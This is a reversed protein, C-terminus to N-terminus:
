EDSALRTILRGRKPQGTTSMTSTSSYLLLCSWRRLLRRTVSSMQTSSPTTDVMLLYVMHLARDLSASSSTRPSQFSCSASRVSLSECSVDSVFTRALSALSAMWSSILFDQRLRLCYQRLSRTRSSYTNLFSRPRAMSATYRILLFALTKRSIRPV